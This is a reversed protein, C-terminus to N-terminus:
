PCLSAARALVKLGGVLGEDFLVARDITLDRGDCAAEVLRALRDDDGLEGVEVLKPRVGAGVLDCCKLIIIAIAIRGNRRCDLGLIHGRWESVRWRPVSGTGALRAMARAVAVAGFANDDAV